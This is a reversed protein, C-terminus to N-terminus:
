HIQAVNRIASLGAVHLSLRHMLMQLGFLSRVLPFIPLFQVMVEHSGHHLLM